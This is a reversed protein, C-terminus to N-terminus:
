ETTFVFIWIKHGVIIREAVVGPEFTFVAYGHVLKMQYTMLIMVMALTYFDYKPRL